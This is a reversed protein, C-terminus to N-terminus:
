PDTVTFETAGCGDWVTGSPPLPVSPEVVIRAATPFAGLGVQVDCSPSGLVSVFCVESRQDLPTGSADEVTIDYTVIVTDPPPGEPPPYSPQGCPLTGDGGYLILEITVDVVSGATVPGSTTCDFTLHTPETEVPGGACAAVGEIDAACIQDPQSPSVFDSRGLLDVSAYEGSPLPATSGWCTLTRDTRIGCSGKYGAVVSTFTGGPAAAQGADNRGWCAVTQDTRLACAHFYGASIQTFTGPPSALFSPEVDCVPAFGPYVACVPFCRIGGDVTLACSGPEGSAVAQYEGGPPGEIYETLQAESGWCRLSGNTRVGCGHSVGVDTDEWGARVYQDFDLYTGETPEPAYSFGTADGTPAWCSLTGADDLACTVGNEGAVVKRYTGDPIEPNTVGQGPDPYDCSLAGFVGLTCRHPSGLAVAAVPGTAVPLTLLKVGSLGIPDTARVTVNFPGTDDTPTGSLVGESTLAVGPPLDGSVVEWEYPGDGPWGGTATLEESLPEDVVVPPLATSTVSVRPVALLPIPDLSWEGFIGLTLGLFSSSLDLEATAMPTVDVAIATEARPDVTAAAEAAVGITGFEFGFWSFVVDLGWGLTMSGQVWEDALTPTWSAEPDITAYPGGVGDIYSAGASATVGVSGALGAKTDSAITLSGGDELTPQIPPLPGPLPIPPLPVRLGLDFEVTCALGGIDIGVDYRLSATVDVTVESPVSGLGWVAVFRPELDATVEDTYDVLACDGSPGAQTAASGDPVALATGTATTPPATVDMDGLAVVEDVAVRGLTVDLGDVATVRGISGQPAAETAELVVLDDVAPLTAGSRFALVTPDGYTAGVVDDVPVITVEDPDVRNVGPTSAAPQGAARWLFAAMAQRSVPLTPRFTGDAYGGTIGSQALWAIETHFPHSPPVDSFGPDSEVPRGGLYRYLFAAMAQRSITRTPGFTGDAYGGTIGATAMWAVEAAFPDEPPVDAFGTAVDTATAQDFRYLFKAMAKRTIPLTPGFSGDDFGNAIDVSTLWDIAAAFGDAAVPDPGTPTPAATAPPPAAASAVVILTAVVCTALTQRM